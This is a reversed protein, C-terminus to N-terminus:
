ARAVDRIASRQRPKPAKLPVYKECLDTLKVVRAATLPKVRKIAEQLSKFERQKEIAELLEDARTGTDRLYDALRADDEGNLLDLVKSQQPIRMQLELNVARFAEYEQRQHEEFRRFQAQLQQEVRVLVAGVDGDIPGPGPGRSGVAGNLAAVQSLLDAENERTAIFALVAEAKVPDLERARAAAHYALEGDLLAFSEM